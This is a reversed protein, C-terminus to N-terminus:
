ILEGLEESTLHQKLVALSEEWSYVSFLDDEAHQGALNGLEEWRRRYEAVSCCFIRQCAAEMYRNDSFGCRMYIESLPVSPDRLLVLAKEMRQTSIYSQFTVGFAKRFFHSLHTTSIGEMEALQSLTIKQRFNEDIYSVLRQARSQQLEQEANDPSDDLEWELYSVMRGLLLIASALIDFQQSGSDTFYVAASKMLLFVLEKYQNYSLTEISGGSFRIKPIWEVYRRLFLRHYQATLLVLPVEGKSVYSHVEYPNILVLQGPELKVTNTGITCQGSGELVYSLEFAGHMHGMLYEIKTIQMSFHRMRDYRIMEQRVDM